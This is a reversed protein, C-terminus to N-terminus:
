GVQPADVAEAARLHEDSRTRRRRPRFFEPGIPLVFPGNPFGCSQCNPEVEMSPGVDHDIIADRLALSDEGKLTEVFEMAERIGVPEGDLSEVRRALRYIYEVNASQGKTRANIQQSYRRIKEEDRGTLLRLVLDKGLIPLHVSFKSLDELEGSPEILPVKDLDISGWSKTGCEECRFPYDYRSGYSISRLQFLIFLRDGLVLDRHDIPCSVCSDYIKNIVEAGSDPGASFLKEDKTGLPEVSIYGEPIQGGYFKGRSPLQIEKLYAESM